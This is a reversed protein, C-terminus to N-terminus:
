ALDLLTLQPFYYFVLLSSLGCYAINLFAILGLHKKLSGKVISACSISFMAFILAITALPYLIEIPMGFYARYEIMIIGLLIASILAGLGDIYLLKRDRTHM